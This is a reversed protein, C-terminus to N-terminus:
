YVPDGLRAIRGTLAPDYGPNGEHPGDERSESQRPNGHEGIPMEDFAPLSNRHVDPTANPGFLDAAGIPASHEEEVASAGEIGITLSPKDM